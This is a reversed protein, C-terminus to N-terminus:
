PNPIRLEGLREGTAADVIVILDGGSALTFRLYLRDGDATMGALESGPPRTIEASIEAPTGAGGWDGNAIRFAITIILVMFGAVLLVGLVIVLGKLAREQPTLPRRAIRDPHKNEASM